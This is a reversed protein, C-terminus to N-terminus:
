LPILEEFPFSAIATPTNVEIDATPDTIPRTRPALIISFKPHRAVNKEIIGTAM